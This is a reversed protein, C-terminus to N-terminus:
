GAYSNNESPTLCPINRSRLPHWNRRMTPLSLITMSVIVMQIAQLLSPIGGFCDASCLGSCTSVRLIERSMFAMRDGEDKGPWIKHCAEHGCMRAAGQTYSAVTHGANVRLATVRHHQICTPMMTASAAFARSWNSRM